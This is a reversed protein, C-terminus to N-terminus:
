IIDICIEIIIDLGDDYVHQDTCNLFFLLGLTRQVIVKDSIKFKKNCLINSIEM